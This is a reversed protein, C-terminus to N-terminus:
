GFSIDWGTLRERKERKNKSPPIVGTNFYSLATSYDIGHNSLFLKIGGTFNFIEGCPSILNWTISKGNNKGRRDPQNKSQKRKAEDTHKWGRCLPNKSRSELMATKIACARELGYFEINTKGKRSSVRGNSGTGGLISNTLTGTNHDLTGINLILKLETELAIHESISANIQIIFPRISYGMSLIKKLKNSFRTNKNLKSNCPHVHKRYATGKGVYIPEYLFCIDVGNYQYQGRKRPDLYIYNYYKM